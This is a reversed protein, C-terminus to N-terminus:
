KEERINLCRSGCKDRLLEETCDCEHVQKGVSIAAFIDMVKLKLLARRIRINRLIM